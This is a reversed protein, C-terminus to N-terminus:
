RNGTGGSGGAAAAAAAETSEQVPEVAGQVVIRAQRSSTTASQARTFTWTLVPPGRACLPLLRPDSTGGVESAERGRLAAGQGLGIRQSGRRSRRWGQILSHRRRTSAGLRGAPAGGLQQLM